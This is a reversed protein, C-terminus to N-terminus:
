REIKGNARPNGPQIWIHVINQEVLYSHFVSKNETGNDTWIAFPKGPITSLARKLVILTNSAM